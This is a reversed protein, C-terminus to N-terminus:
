APRGAAFYPVWVAAFEEHCAGCLDTGVVLPVDILKPMLQDPVPTERPDPYAAVGSKFGLTERERVAPNHFREGIPRKCRDCHKHTSM